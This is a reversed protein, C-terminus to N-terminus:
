AFIFWWDVEITQCVQLHTKNYAFGLYLSVSQNSEPRATHSDAPEEFDRYSMYEDVSAFRPVDKAPADHYQWDILLEVPQVSPGDNVVKFGLRTSRGM